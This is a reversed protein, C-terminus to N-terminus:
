KLVYNFFCYLGIYMAWSPIGFGAQAQAQQKQMDADLKQKAGQGSVPHPRAGPPAGSRKPARRRLGGTANQAASDVSPEETPPAAMTAPDDPIIYEGTQKDLVPPPPMNLGKKGRTLAAQIQNLHSIIAVNERRLQVIHAMLLGEKDIYGLESILRSGTMWGPYLMHLISMKDYPTDYPMAAVFFDFDSFKMQWELLFMVVLATYCYTRAQSAGNGLTILFTVVASMVYHIGMTMLASSEHDRDNPSGEFAELGDKGFKDYIMKRRGDKLVEYAEHVKEMMIKAFSQEEETASAAIKDPHYMLSAQRYARKVEGTNSHRHVNLTRYLNPEQWHLHQVYVQGLMLLAIFGVAYKPGKKQYCWKAGPTVFFMYFLLDAFGSM